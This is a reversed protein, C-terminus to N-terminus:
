FWTKLLQVAVGICLLTYKTSFVIVIMITIVGASLVKLWEDTAMRFGEKETVKIWVM